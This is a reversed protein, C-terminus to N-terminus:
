QRALDRLDGTRSCCEPGQCPQPHRIRLGLRKACHSSEFSENEVHSVLLNATRTSFERVLSEPPKVVPKSHGAWHGSRDGDPYNVDSAAAALFTQYSDEEDEVLTAPPM